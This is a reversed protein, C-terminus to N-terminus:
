GYAARQVPQHRQRSRRCLHARCLAGVLDGSPRFVPRWGFLDILIQAPLTATVASLSGLMAFLGMAFTAHQAPYWLAIANAGATFATATGIGLLVRGALVMPLSHATAFVIAGAAAILCGISQVWRPGRRDTLGGLPIQVVAMGLLYSATVIGLESPSLTLERALRDAILANITYYVWSLYYGAAFPLLVTAYLV